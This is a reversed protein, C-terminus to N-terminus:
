IEKFTAEDAGVMTNLRGQEAEVPTCALLADVLCVGKVKLDAAIRLTSGPQSTSTDIVIQGSRSSELIGDKGYVLDEVQPSGTVSLVMVDVGGVLGDVDKAEQAGRSVLDEVPRRNRHGLITLAFGKEVLNKAMGHRMLGVDVFGIRKTM